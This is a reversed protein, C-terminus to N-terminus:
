LVLILDSKQILLYDVGDINIERSKSREFMVEKGLFDSRLSDPISMIVATVFPSPTQKTLILGHEEASKEEQTLIYDNLVKM